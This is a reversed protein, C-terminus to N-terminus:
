DRQSSTAPRMETRPRASPLHPPRVSTQGTQLWALPRMTFGTPHLYEILHTALAASAATADANGTQHLDGNNTDPRYMM